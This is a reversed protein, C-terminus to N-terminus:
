QPLAQGNDYTNGTWTTVSPDNAADGLVPGFNWSNRVWVNNRVTVNSVTQTRDKINLTYGGGALRNGEVLVNKLNGGLHAHLIMASTMGPEMELNNGRLVINTGGISQVGDSHDDADDRMDHVWSYEFVTNSGARIGDGCGSIDVRRATFHGYVIGINCNDQVGRGAITVDEILTGSTEPDVKIGYSATGDIYVNRITVNDAEVTLQGTIRLNEVVAGNQTVRVSGSPSLVSANVVGTNSPGPWSGPAPSAATSPSPSPTPGAPTSLTAAASNSADDDPAAGDIVVASSQAEGNRDLWRGEILDGVALTIEPFVHFTSDDQPGTADYGDPRASTSREDVVGNVVFQVGSGDPYVSGDITVTPLRSPGPEVDSWVATGTDVTPEPEVNESSTVSEGDAITTDPPAPNSENPAAVSPTARDAPLSGDSTEAGGGQCATALLHVGVVVALIRAM